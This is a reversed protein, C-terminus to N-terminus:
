SFYTRGIQEAVCAPKDSGEIEVTIVSKMQVTNPDVLRAEVLESVGRVRSGVPVPSIFRVKDLGYNVGMMVGELPSDSEVMKALHPILSLTLFGHAITKGWPTSKAREPDVHIFQHDLTADAFQNIRDQDIELWESPPGAQGITKQLSELSNNAPIAM